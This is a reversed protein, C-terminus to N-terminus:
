RSGFEVLLSPNVIELIAAADAEAVAPWLVARAGTYKAALRVRDDPNLGEWREALSNHANDSIKVLCAAQDDVIGALMEPYPVGERKTVKLVTAVVAAPVGEALLDAATLATDEVVDHLLGAMRLGTGFPALGASVARVHAIYPVGIKDYQGRHAREALADVQALTLTRIAV